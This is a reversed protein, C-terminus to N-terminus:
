PKVSSSASGVVIEGGGLQSVRIMNVTIGSTSVGDGTRTQENLVVYGVGPLDVRTNPAVNAPVALGNVVLNVFGSGDANSAAGASNQYSSAIATVNEARILGNLISVAELESVSQASASRDPPG